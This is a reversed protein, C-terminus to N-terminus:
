NKPIKPSTNKKVRILLREQRSETYKPQAGRRKLSISNSILFFFDSSFVEGRM